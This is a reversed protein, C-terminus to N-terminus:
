QMRLIARTIANGKETGNSRMAAGSIGRWSSPELASRMIKRFWKYAMALSVRDKRLWAEFLRCGPTGVRGKTVGELVVM